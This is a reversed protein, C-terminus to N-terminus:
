KIHILKAQMYTQTVYMGPVSLVSSPALDWTVSIVSLQSSGLDEVHIAIARVKQAM